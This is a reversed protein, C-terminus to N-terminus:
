LVFGSQAVKTGHVLKVLKRDPHQRFNSLINLNKNYKKIVEPDHLFTSPEASLFPDIAAIYKPDKEKIMRLADVHSTHTLGAVMPLIPNAFNRNDIRYNVVALYTGYVIGSSVSCFVGCLISFTSIGMAHLVGAGTVTVCASACLSVALHKFATKIGVSDTTAARLVKIQDAADLCAVAKDSLIPTKDNETKTM